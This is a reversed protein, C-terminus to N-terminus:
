GLGSPISKESRRTIFTKECAPFNQATLTNTIEINPSAAHPESPVGLLFIKLRLGNPSDAFSTAFPAGCMGTRCRAFMANRGEATGSTLAGGVRAGNRPFRPATGAEGPLPNVSCRCASQESSKELKANLMSVLATEAVM